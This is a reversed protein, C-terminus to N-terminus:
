LSKFHNGKELYFIVETLGRKNHSDHGGYTNHTVKCESYSTKPRVMKWRGSDSGGKRENMFWANNNEILAAIVVFLGFITLKRM